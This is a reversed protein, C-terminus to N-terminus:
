CSAEHKRIMGTHLIPLPLHCIGRAQIFENARVLTALQPIVLTEGEHFDNNLRKLVKTRQGLKVWPPLANEFDEISLNLKM